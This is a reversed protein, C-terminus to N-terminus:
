YNNKIISKKTLKPNDGFSIFDLGYLSGIM